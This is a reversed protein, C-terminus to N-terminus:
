RRVRYRFGKEKPTADTIDDTNVHIVAAFPIAIYNKKNNNNADVGVPTGGGGANGDIEFEIETLGINISNYFNLIQFQVSIKSLFPM